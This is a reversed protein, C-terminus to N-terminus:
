QKWGWSRVPGLPVLELVAGPQLQFTGKPRLVYTGELGLDAAMEKAVQAPDSETDIFADRSLQKEPIEITVAVQPM